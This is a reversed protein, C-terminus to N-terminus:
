QPICYFLPMFFPQNIKHGTNANATICVLFLPLSAEHKLAYIASTLFSYKGRHM